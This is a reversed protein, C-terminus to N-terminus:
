PGRPVASRYVDSGRGCRHSAPGLKRLNDLNKTKHFVTDSLKAREWGVGNAVHGAGIRELDPASIVGPVTAADYPKAIPM